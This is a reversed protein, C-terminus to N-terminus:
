IDNLRVFWKQRPRFNIYVHIKNTSAFQPLPFFEEFSFVLSNLFAAIAFYLKKSPKM